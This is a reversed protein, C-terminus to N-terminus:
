FGGISGGGVGEEVEDANIDWEYASSAIKPFTESLIEIIADQYMTVDEIGLEKLMSIMNQAQSIASDRKEGAVTSLPTIIPNMHLKFSNVFGNYNREAFYKNFAETWGNMYATELRQLANAYLASRQSLVTGAGGLGENSSFNLAEKPVGLVSLKKNQYYELLNNDAENSEAM